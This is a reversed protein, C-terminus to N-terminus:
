NDLYAEHPRYRKVVTKRIHAFLGRSADKCVHPCDGSPFMQLQMLMGKRYRRHRSRRESHPRRCPCAMIHTFRRTYHSSTSSRACSPRAHLATNVLVVLDELSSGPM